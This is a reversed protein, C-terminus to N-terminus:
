VRSTPLRPRARRNSGNEEIEVVRQEIMAATRCVREPADLVGVVAETVDGEVFEFAVVRPQEFFHVERDDAPPESHVIRSALPKASQELCETRTNVVLCAGRGCAQVSGLVERRSARHVACLRKQLCDALMRGDSDHRVIQQLLLLFLQLEAPQGPVYVYEDDRLFRAERLWLRPDKLHGEVRQVNVRFVRHHDAIGPFRIDGARAAASHAREPEVRQPQWARIGLQPDGLQM